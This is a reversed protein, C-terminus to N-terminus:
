GAEDLIAQVRAADVELGLNIVVVAPRGNLSVAVSDVWYPVEDRDLLKRVEDVQSVAVRVYPRDNGEGSVLLRDGNRTDTM